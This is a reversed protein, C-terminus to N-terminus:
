VLISANLYLGHHFHVLCFSTYYSSILSTYPFLPCIYWTCLGPSSRTYIKHFPLFLHKLTRYYGSSIRSHPRKAQQPQQWTYKIITSSVRRVLLICRCETRIISMYTINLLFATHSAYLSHCSIRGTPGSPRHGFASVPHVAEGLVTKSYSNDTLTVRPFSNHKPLGFDEKPSTFRLGLM